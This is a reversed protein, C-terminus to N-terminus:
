ELRKLKVQPRKMESFYLDWGCSAARLNRDHLYARLYEVADYADSLYDFLDTEESQLNREALRRKLLGLYNSMARIQLYLSEIQKDSLKARTM